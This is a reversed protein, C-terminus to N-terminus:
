ANKPVSLRVWVFQRPQPIQVQARGRSVAVDGTGALMTVMLKEGTFPVDITAEPQDNLERFILLYGGGDAGRSAFGTWRTGDPADGLPTITGGHMAARHEKWMAVLPAVQEIYDSPLNSVEFWGLPSAFMVSAFL